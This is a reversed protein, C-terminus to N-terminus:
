SYCQQSCTYARKCLCTNRNRELVDRPMSNSSGTPVRNWKPSSGFKELASAHHEMEVLFLLSNRWTWAVEQKETRTMRTLTCHCRVPPEIQRVATQIEEKSFPRNPDKARIKISNNKKLDNLQLLEKYLRSVPREGCVHDTNRGNQPNDKWKKQLM